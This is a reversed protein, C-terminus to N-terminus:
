YGWEPGVLTYDGFGTYDVFIFRRAITNYYWIEYPRSGAEFPHREIDTPEGYTVYIRGRDTEWGSRNTAFHENAYEVRRYYEDMLEDADGSAAKAQEQWFARFAQEKEASSAARLKSMQDGSAIYKLQRIALEIDTINVPIGSLRMGFGRTRSEHRDGVSSLLSLTYRQPTLAGLAVVYEVRQVAGTASITQTSRQVTDSHVNTLLWTLLVPEPQSSFVQAVARAISDATTFNEVVRPVGLERLSQDESEWFIDSVRLRPDTRTMAVSGEWKSKKHAERETTLTVRV